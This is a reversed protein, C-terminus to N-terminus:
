LCGKETLLKLYSGCLGLVLISLWILLLIMIGQEPTPKDDQM